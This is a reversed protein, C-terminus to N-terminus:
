KQKVELGCISVFVGILIIGLPILVSESDACMVGFVILGTGIKCLM